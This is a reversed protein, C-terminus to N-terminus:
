GVAGRSARLERRWIFRKASTRLLVKVRTVLFTDSYDRHGGLAVSFGGHTRVLNRSRHRSLRHHSEDALPLRPETSGREDDTPIDVAAVLTCDAPSLIVDEAPRVPPVALLIRIGPENPALPDSVDRLRRQEDSRVAERFDDTEKRSIPDIVIHFCNRNSSALRRREGLGTLIAEGM